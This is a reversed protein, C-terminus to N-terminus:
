VAISSGQVAISSGWVAIKSGWRRDEIEVGRDETEVQGIAIRSASRDSNSGRDEKKTSPGETNRWSGGRLICVEINNSSPLM